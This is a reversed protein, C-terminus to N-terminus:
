EVLCQLNAPRCSGNTNKKQVPIIRELTPSGDIRRGTNRDVAALKLVHQDMNSSARLCIRNKTSRICSKNCNTTSAAIFSKALRRSLAIGDCGTLIWRANANACKPPLIESLSYCSFGPSVNGVSICKPADVEAALQCGDFTTPASVQSPASVPSARPTTPTSPIPAIPASVPSGGSSSQTTDCSVKSLYSLITSSSPGFGDSGSSISAEM